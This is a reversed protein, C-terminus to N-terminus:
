ALLKFFNKDRERNCRMNYMKHDWKGHM